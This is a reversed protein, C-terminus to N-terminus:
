LVANCGRKGLEDVVQKVEQARDRDCILLADPTSVIILNHVGVTAVVKADVYILCGSSDLAVHGNTNVCVTGAEDAQIVEPLSSWSGVDSWGMEVPVVQVRSSKEMVAYDISVSAVSSYATEIQEDLDSLEWVDKTFTIRSLAQALEPLYTNIEAMITDSRWIFMGSNWFFNGADLYRVAQDLPPKEVFRRVPFPGSGRLEMDAEIYGYGTEPRSPMIGLTVLYGKRAAQAANLLTQQLAQEDKIFHDAPLVVMVGEPDHAAIITAALGIAPATNRASPEAIVDIPVTRYQALQRETEEAQIRNTIILIRKPKLPLVREVTRQLMTRDGTISILQKPRAARSLPWFRTGSGGALIVIYM